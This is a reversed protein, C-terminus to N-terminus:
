GLIYITEAIISFNLLLEHGHMRLLLDMVSSRCWRQMYGSMASCQMETCKPMRHLTQFSLGALCNLLLLLTSNHLISGLADL